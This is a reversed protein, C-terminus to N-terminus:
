ILASIVDLEKDSIADAGSEKVATMRPKYSLGNCEAAKKLWKSLSEFDSKPHANKLKKWSSYEQLGADVKEKGFENVLKEYEDKSILVNSTNNITTNLNILGKNNVQKNNDQINKDIPPYVTNDIGPLCQNGYWSMYELLVPDATNIVIRRESVEKSDKQYIMKSIILKRKELDSVWRTITRPDVHYREAFYDNTGWCYGEQKTHSAIDGFFLKEGPPIEADNLIFDPVIVFQIKKPQEKKEM